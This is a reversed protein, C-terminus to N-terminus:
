DMEGLGFGDRTVQLDGNGALAPAALRHEAEVRLVVAEPADSDDGRLRAVDVVDVV